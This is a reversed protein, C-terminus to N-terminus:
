PAWDGASASIRLIMRDALAQALREQADNQASRTAFPSAVASYATTANVTDRFLVIGTAIETLTYDATGRVTFRNVSADPRIARGEEDIETEFDLRYVGGSAQFLRSVLRERLGFEFSDEPEAVTIGALAPRAASDAHYLPSFGCGALLALGAGILLRRAAATGGTKGSGSIGSPKSPQGGLGATDARVDRPRSCWM